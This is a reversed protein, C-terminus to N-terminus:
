FCVTALGVGGFLVRIWILVLKSGLVWEFGLILGVYVPRLKGQGFSIKM